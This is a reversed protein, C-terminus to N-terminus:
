EDRLALAARADFRLTSVGISVDVGLVRELVGALSERYSERREEQLQYLRPREDYVAGRARLYTQLFATALEGDGDRRVVAPARKYVERRPGREAGLTVLM